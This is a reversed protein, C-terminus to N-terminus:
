ACFILKERFFFKKRMKKAEFEQLYSFFNYRQMAKQSFCCEPHLATRNARRSQSCSTGPEFGPVGVYFLFHEANETKKDGEMRYEM